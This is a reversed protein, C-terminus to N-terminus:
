YVGGTSNKPVPVHDWVDALWDLTVQALQAEAGIQCHEGAGLATRFLNYTSQNQQGPRGGRQAAGAAMQAAQGPASSDNEGDGVFVPCTINGLVAADVRYAPLRGWWDAPSTTAFTFLSQALIWRVSTPTSSANHMAALLYQDFEAHRGADYLDLLAAPFQRAFAAHLDALGDVALVAALRHEHAAALPALSGGFSVGVLAIRDPDVDARTRLYDVVPTVVRWWDPIFGLGQERLVTPQGPGEYTVVNWGRALIEVGNSHYLDEQAGDYGTGVIVTPRRSGEDKTEACDAQSKFFRVPVTFNGGGSVVNPSSASLNVNEAPPALLAAAADFDAVARAGLDNIRPDSANAHLFFPANRYYTSARFYAERASVPFRTANVAAAKAHLADGLFLFEDYWSEFDGPVIQSAARLVEGTAAGGGNNSLALIVELVFAFETDNSLQFMASPDLAAQALVQPYCPMNIVSRIDIVSVPLLLQTSMLALRSIRM